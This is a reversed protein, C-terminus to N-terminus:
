VGRCGVKIALCVSSLAPLVGMGHHSQSCPQLAFVEEKIDMGVVKGGGRRTELSSSRGASGMAGPSAGTPTVGQFTGDEGSDAHVPAAQSGGGAQDKKKVGACRPPSSTQPGGPM